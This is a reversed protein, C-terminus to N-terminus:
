SLKVATGACTVTLVVGLHERAPQGGFSRDTAIIMDREGTERAREM